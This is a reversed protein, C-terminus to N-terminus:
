YVFNTLFAIIFSHSLLKASTDSTPQCRISISADFQQLAPGPAHCLNARRQQAKCCQRSCPGSYSASPITSIDHSAKQASFGSGPAVLLRLLGKRGGPQLFRADIARKRSNTQQKARMHSELKNFNLKNTSVCEGPLGFHPRKISSLLDLLPFLLIFTHKQSVKSKSRVGSNADIWIYEAMASGKQDLSTYKLLQSFHSDASSWNLM